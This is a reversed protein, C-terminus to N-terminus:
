QMEGKKQKIAFDLSDEMECIAMELLSDPGLETEEKSFLKAIAFRQGDVWREICVRTTGDEKNPSAFLRKRENELLQEAFAILDEHLFEKHDDSSCYCHKEALAIIEDKTM